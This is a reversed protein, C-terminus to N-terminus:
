KELIDIIKATIEQQKQSKLRGPSYSILQRAATFIKNPRVFSKAPLTGSEFDTTDLPVAYSDSSAVSTIQCLIVDDGYLDAIVLAPRRKNGSLDSFPFPLVVIDGKVFKGL